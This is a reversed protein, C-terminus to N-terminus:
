LESEHPFNPRAPRAQWHLIRRFRILNEGFGRTAIVLQLPSFKFFRARQGSRDPPRGRRM